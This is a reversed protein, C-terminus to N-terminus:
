VWLELLTELAAAWGEVAENGEPCALAGDASELVPRPGDVRMQTVVVVEPELRQDAASIALCHCLSRRARLSCQRAVEGSTRATALGVTGNAIPERLLTALLAQEPALPGPDKDAAFVFEFRLADTSLWESLKRVTVMLLALLLVIRQCPLEADKFRAGVLDPFLAFVFTRRRRLFQNDDRAYYLLEDRLYKIDFLDPRDNKEMFALQSHLLSELSGRTALSAFGGVPYTDEDLVRTPVERRGSRPRVRRRPLLAELRAATQLVQRLAVRQGLDALATGHELEFLDEPGLVEATRRAAAVLGEYLDPLLPMLGDRQLTEWGRALVKDAPDQLLGKIVAPSLHVGGFGARERFQNVVFALGRARDRGQYRRLADGARDFTWDAYMKGLVHDEYTRALGAPLGPGAAPERGARTDRDLGFATHGLDAVFGVPSLPHGEAALTLAWHLVEPVTAPAAPLVRQLWLGQLLYRRALDLDRLEIVSM